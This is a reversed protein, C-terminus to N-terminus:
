EEVIEKTDNIEVPLSNKRDRTEPPDWEPLSNKRSLFNKHAHQHSCHQRPEEERRPHSLGAVTQSIFSM